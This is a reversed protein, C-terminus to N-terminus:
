RDRAEFARKQAEIANYFDARSPDIEALRAAYQLALDWLGHDRCIAALGSLYEINEPDLEHAKQLPAIAKEYQGLQNLAVGYFYHIYANDPMLRAAEALSKLAEDYRKIRVLHRGLAEHTVGRDPAVKVAEELLAGAGDTRGTQFLLEALNIRSEIHGPDLNFAHRYSKEAAAPDGLDTYLIGYAMHPGPRDALADLSAKYEALAADFADAHSGPRLRRHGEALHQAAAIRVARIPDDLLDAALEIRQDIGVSQLGDLATERVLPDPDLLAAAIAQLGEPTLRRGILDLATARVIAPTEADGVLDILRPISGRENAFGAAMTEGYHPPLPPKGSDKLWKTLADAAWEPPHDKHCQTCANPSGLKVSLDPRPIRISHDRRPDVVMYNQEPMHCEICSAGTSGVPHYHHEPTNYKTPIHCQACLANGEVRPKLTHPNHCDTCRVGAHFMKSQLFSGYVYVEEKIQGDPHYLRDELINPLHTDHFRQGHQFTMELPRRRSHCPACTEVQVTSDLPRTRSPKLTKPDIMWGGPEREKLVVSLGFRDPNMGEYDDPSKAWELHTSGPGHCSECSVNNEAWTTSYTDSEKDYNKKLDTSHCDACMYNWNFHQRTWHLIDDHPIPEDPYLHFWRQGGEEKPHSDWCISLAQYRGGPFPILYQQLPYHGFTYEIKYETPVGESNPTKVYFDEGEKYFKSEVGYHSFSVDNFDGLVTKENAVQMALHHDSGHWEDTEVEHCDACSNSGVFTPEGASEKKGCGVMSCLAIAAAFTHLSPRKPSRTPQPTILM